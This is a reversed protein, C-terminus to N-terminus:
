TCGFICVIFDFLTIYFDYLMLYLECVIVFSGIYIVYCLVVEWMFRIFSYLSWYVACLIM